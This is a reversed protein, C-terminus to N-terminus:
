GVWKRPYGLQQLQAVYTKQKNKKQSWSNRDKQFFPNKCVAVAAEEFHLPVLTKLRVARSEASLVAVDLMSVKSLADIVVLADLDPENLKKEKSYHENKLKLIVDCRTFGSHNKDKGKSLIRFHECKQVKKSTSSKKKKLYQIKIISLYYEDRIM